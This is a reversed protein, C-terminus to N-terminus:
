WFFNNIVDVVQGSWTDVLLADDYYRVWQYGPPAYPLGYQTPNFWYNSSYYSPWLRWGISFRQYGWGFPDFYAGLRFLSRHHRRRDQWNYRHDNRWNGNWRHTQNRGSYQRTAQAPPQTGQRPVNSVVPVRSRMVNPPPRDYQRFSGNSRRDQVAVGQQEDAPDRAIPRRERSRWDRASGSSNDTNMKQQDAPNQYGGNNQNGFRQHRAENSQGGGAGGGYGNGGQVKVAAPSEFSRQRDNNGGSRDGRQDHNQQGRDDNSQQKQPSEQQQQHRNSQESKAEDSRDIPKAVSIAPTAVGALLVLFMFKRM